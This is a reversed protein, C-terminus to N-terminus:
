KQQIKKVKKLYVFFTTGKESSQFCIKGGCGEVINRSIALGLGAGTNKTTFNPVFVKERVEEAIGPGNDSISVEVWGEKRSLGKKERQAEPIDKLIIIIDSGDRGEMAQVANKVINQFVQVVQNGDAWVMVDKEPGVYRVPVVDSENRLLLIYDYLKQAIDVVEVHVEPMKAFSSFSRAINSMNDIQGILVNATRDFAQEFRETGKWRQLQQLTLKMPTLSNNIEHAVQRAMTRWAGERESRALKQTSEALADLMENYRRLLDGVEDHYRYRVHYGSDGLRYNKMQEGLAMLPHSVMRSVVWVVVICGLLLGIYLPWLRLVFGGVYNDMESESIFSPVAIYGIPNYNGNVFQTYASLYAVEGLREEKVMMLSDSFFAEASMLRSLLGLEFLKPSSSGLLQGNLDYVHIDTEYDLSMDRLDINLSSSHAKGLGMDWFYTDQLSTQIHRATEELRARQEQVFVKKMHWVSVGFVAVLTLVLTSVLVLQLRNALPMNRIGRYRILSSLALLLLLAGLGLTVWYLAQMRREISGGDKQEEELVSRYSFNELGVRAEDDGGRVHMEDVTEELVFLVRGKADKVRYEGIKKDKATTSEATMEGPMKHAVVDGLRKMAVDDMGKVSEGHCKVGAVSCSGANVWGNNLEESTVRYNYKLPLVVIVRYGASEKTRYVGQANGWLGYHWDNSRRLPYVPESLWSDSWYVLSGGAYVYWLAGSFQHTYAWLQDFDNKEFVVDVHELLTDVCAMRAHLEKEFRVCKKDWRQCAGLCTLLLLLLAIYIRQSRM